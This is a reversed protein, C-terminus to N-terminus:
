AGALAARAAKKSEGLSADHLVLATVAAAQSKWVGRLATVKEVWGTIASEMGEVSAEVASWGYTVDVGLFWGFAESLVEYPAQGDETKVKLGDKLVRNALARLVTRLAGDLEDALTNALVEMAGVVRRAEPTIEIEVGALADLVDDAWGVEAWAAALADWLDRTM